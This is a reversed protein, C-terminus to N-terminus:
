KSSNYITECVQSLFLSYEGLINKKNVCLSYLNNNYQDFIKTCNLWKVKFQFSKYWFLKTDLRSTEVLSIM